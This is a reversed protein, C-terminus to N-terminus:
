QMQRVLKQFHLGRDIYNKFQDFSACAPSLLVLDGAEIHEALDFLIDDISQWQSNPVTNLAYAITAADKGFLRVEYVFQECVERLETFDQDKGVGGCILWLRGNIRNQLGKIAAITSGVNTGKSDDIFDVGQVNAIWQCRHPLGKYDCLADIVSPLNIDLAECIALAAMVNLVNHSGKLRLEDINLLAREGHYIVDGTTKEVLKITADDSNISFTTFCESNSTHTKPQWSSEDLNIIQKRSGSYIKQKAEIYDNYSDYRDLHDPSINLVTVVDANLSGVTELQFSSLELIYIDPHLELMDLAPIGLNGGAKAHIGISILLHEVLTTVTSKGNSGTIAVVPKDVVCSFLDIDGTFEVGNNKARVIADDRPDIGPSIIVQDYQSLLTSDLAGLFFQSDPYAAKLEEINDIKSRTDAFDFSLERRTLFNACSLGTVGLGLILRRKLPNLKDHCLTNM